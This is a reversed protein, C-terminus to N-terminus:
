RVPTPGTTAGPKAGGPAAAAKLANAAEKLADAAGATKAAADKQPEAAAALLADIGKQEGYLSGMRSRARQEEGIDQWTGSFGKGWPNLSSLWSTDRQGTAIEGAVRSREERLSKVTEPSLKGKEKYEAEAAKLTQEATDLRGEVKEAGKEKEASAKSLIITAGVATITAGAIHLGSMKGIAGALADGIAKEAGAKAISAAMATVIAEGPNKAAWVVLGSFAEAAAVAKPALQEMAPLVKGAASEAIRELQNNFLTVKSETTGMAAKFSDAIEGQGMSAKMLKGLEEDIAAMGNDGGGAQRYTNVLAEAPKKGIISAWMRAFGVPDNGKAAISKKLIKFPDDLLGTKKDFIDSEKMHGQAMFQKLRAPMKLTDTMRAVANVAESASAAGGKQRALQALAGLKALNESADGAYQPAAASLRAMKTSLDKIEVAGLKGQGAIARMVSVIKEGKNPVDGLSNSVDGAAAVMDDFETNSAKALRGLEGLVDRGTALDGTKGVFASLGAMAKNTDLGVKDAVDRVEALLKKPDQRVGAPGKEGPMYGANSLAVASSQASGIKGVISGVDFNVGAGRAIQGTLSAGAGLIGGFTRAASSAFDVRAKQQQKLAKEAAKEEQEFYRRKMEVVYAAGREKERQAKADARAQAALSREYDRTIDDNARSAGRASTRYGGAFEAGADSGAKGLKARARGVSALLPELVRTASGDLACGVRIRIAPM